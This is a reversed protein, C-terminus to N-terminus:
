AAGAAEAGVAAPPKGKKRDVGMVHVNSYARSEVSISVPQSTLVEV